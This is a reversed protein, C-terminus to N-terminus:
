HHGAWEAATVAYVYDDLRPRGNGESGAPKEAVRRLGAKELVRQSARHPTFVDAQVMAVGLETFCMRVLAATVETALGRGAWAPHVTYGLVAERMGNDDPQLRVMADGVVAGDLEIVLGLRPEPHGPEGAAIDDAIRQAVEDRDLPGRSLFEAVDPRARYALVADVDESTIPRLSTRPTRLPWELAGFGIGSSRM